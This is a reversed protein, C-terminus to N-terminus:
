PTMVVPRLGARLADASAVAPVDGTAPRTALTTRSPAQLLALLPSKLEQAYGIVSHGPEHPLSQWPDAGRALLWAVLQRQQAPSDLYSPTLVQALPLWPLQNAHQPPVRNVLGPARALWWDLAAWDSSRLALDFGGPLMGDFSGLATRANHGAAELSRALPAGLAGPHLADLPSFSLSGDAPLLGQALWGDLVGDLGVARASPCSLMRMADHHIARADAQALFRLADLAPPAAVSFDPCPNAQALAVLPSEACAEPSAGRALLEPLVPWFQPDRAALTLPCRPLGSAAVDRAQLSGAVFAGCRPSLAREVSNLRVCPTPDGETLQGHLHAVVLATTCGGVLPVFVSFLGLLALRQLLKM